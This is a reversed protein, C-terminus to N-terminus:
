FFLKEESTKFIINKTNPQQFVQQQEAASQKM